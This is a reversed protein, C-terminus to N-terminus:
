HTLPVAKRRVSYYRMGAPIGKIELVGAYILERLRYEFFSDGIDQDCDGIATGIVRAAKVYEEADAPDAVRDLTELLFADFFDAPVERVADNEFIRLVGGQEAIAEWEAALRRIDAASLPNQNEIRLLAEKLVDPAIEGSRRYTVSADTHGQLEESIACADCLRVINPKHRLWYLAYRMGAQEQVSSSAWVIIEAQEPISHLQHHLRDYEEEPDADDELAASAINHRFWDHRARRGEPTELRGIPGIAFNDSITMLKHADSLGLERLAVKMGGAFSEGTVIHVHTCGPVPDWPQPKADREVLRDYLRMLRDIATERSATQEKFLSIHQLVFMLCAKLEGTNLHEVAKQIKAFDNM